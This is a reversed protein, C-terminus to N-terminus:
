GAASSEKTSGLMLHAYIEIASPLDTADISEDATHAQEPEGPGLLVAPIGAKTLWSSDNTANDMGLRPPRGAATAAAAALKVIPEEPELAYPPWERVVSTTVQLPPPCARALVRDIEAIADATEESPLVRRDITYAARDPVVNRASSPATISTVTLSPRPPDFREDFAPLPMARLQALSEIAADIPSHLAHSMGAHGGKGHIAVDVGVNGRNGLFVDLGTPQPCVAWRGRVAAAALLAKTGRASGVEEDATLVLELSLEDLGCLDAVLEIACVCAAVGGKMDAVGRGFIRGGDRTLRFPPRTWDGADAPVVDVHCAFTLRRAPDGRGFSMVSAPVGDFDFHEITEAHGGVRREIVEICARLSDSGAISEQEVLERLLEAAADARAVAAERVEDRRTASSADSRRPTM